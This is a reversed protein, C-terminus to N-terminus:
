IFREEFNEDGDLDYNIGCYPCQSGEFYIGCTDCQCKDDWSMLNKTQPYSEM